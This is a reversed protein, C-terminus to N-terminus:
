CIYIRNTLKTFILILCPKYSLHSAIYLLMGQASSDAPTFEISYNKLKINTTVSIQKTIRTESVAIICFAKNTCKLPHDLDDFNKNLFCGNIYFLSIKSLSLSLSLCLSLSLSLSLSVSLCLSLSVSLCLSVSLSLSPCLPVSLSLSPCLSVSPSLPLCLSVSVSVSVSVSNSIFSIFDNSKLTEFLFNKSCHSFCEWSNNSGQLYKSDIHNLKNCKM